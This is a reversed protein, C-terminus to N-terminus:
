EVGRERRGVVAQGATGPVNRTERDVFGATRLWQEVTEGGYADGRGVALREVAVRRAKSSRERLPEFVVVTGGPALADHVSRLLRENTEPNHRRVVGALLALDADVAPVTTREAAVTEVGGGALM